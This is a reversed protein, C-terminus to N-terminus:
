RQRRKSVHQDVESRPLLYDAKWCSDPERGQPYGLNPKVTRMGMRLSPEWEWIPIIKRSSLATIPQSICPCLINWVFFVVFDRGPSESLSLDSSVAARFGNPRLCNWPGPIWSNKRLWHKEAGSTQGPRFINARSVQGGEHLIIGSLNDATSPRLFRTHVSQERDGSHNGLLGLLKGQGWLVLWFFSSGLHPGKCIVHSDNGLCSFLSQGFCCFVHITFELM